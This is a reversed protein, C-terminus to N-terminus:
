WLSLLLYLMKFRQLYGIHTKRGVAGVNNSTSWALFGLTFTPLSILQVSVVSCYQQSFCRFDVSIAFSKLRHLFASHCCYCVCTYIWLCANNQVTQLLCGGVVCGLQFLLSLVDLTCDSTWNVWPGARWYARVCCWREFPSGVILTSLFWVTEAKYAPVSRRLAGEPVRSSSLTLLPLPCCNVTTLVNWCGPAQPTTNCPCM